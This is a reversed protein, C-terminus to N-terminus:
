VRSMEERLLREERERLAAEISRAAEQEFLGPTRKWEAVLLEADAIELNLLTPNRCAGCFTRSARKGQFISDKPWLAVVIRYRWPGDEYDPTNESM